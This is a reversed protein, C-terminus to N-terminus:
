SFSYSFGWLRCLQVCCLIERFWPKRLLFAYGVDLQKLSVVTLVSLCFFIFWCNLYGSQYFHVLTFSLSILILHCSFFFIVYQTGGFLSWHSLTYSVWFKHVGTRLQLKCIFRHFKGLFIFQNGQQLSKDNSLCCLKIGILM